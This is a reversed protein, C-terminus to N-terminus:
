KAPQKVAKTPRAHRARLGKFVDAAPVSPRSDKVSARVKAHLYNDLAAHGSSPTLIIPKSPRM